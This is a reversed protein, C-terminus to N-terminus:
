APAAGCCFCSPAMAGEEPYPYGGDPSAAHLNASQRRAFGAAFAAMADWFCRMRSQPKPGRRRPSGVWLKEISAAEGNVREADGESWITPDARRLPGLSWAHLALERVRRLVLARVYTLM